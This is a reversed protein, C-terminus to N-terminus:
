RILSDILTASLYAALFLCKGLKIPAGVSQEGWRKRQLLFAFLQERNRRRRGGRTL